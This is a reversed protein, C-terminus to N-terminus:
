DIWTAFGEKLAKELDAKPIEFVHHKGTPFGCASPYMKGDPLTKMTYVQIGKLQEAMKSIPIQSKAECQKSGDPKSVRVRDARATSPLPAAVQPTSSFDQSKQCPESACGLTQLSSLLLTGMIGKIQIKM